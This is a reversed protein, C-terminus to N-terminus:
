KNLMGGLKGTAGALGAKDLFGTFQTPNDKIYQLVTDVAQGAKQKDLGVKSVLLSVLQEKM